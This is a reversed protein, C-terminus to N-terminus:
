QWWSDTLPVDYSENISIVANTSGAALKCSCTHIHLGCYKIGLEILYQAMAASSTFFFFFGEPYSEFWFILVKVKVTHDGFCLYTSNPRMAIKYMPILHHVQSATFGSHMEVVLVCVCMCACVGVCTWAHQRCSPTPLGILTHQNGGTQRVARLGWM